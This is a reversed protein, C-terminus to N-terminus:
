SLTDRILKRYNNQILEILKPNDRDLGLEEISPM